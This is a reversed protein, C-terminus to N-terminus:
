WHNQRLYQNLEAMTFNTNGNAVEQRMANILDERQNSHKAQMIKDGLDSLNYKTNGKGNANPDYGYYTGGSSSTTGAADPNQRFFERRIAEAAERTMGAAALEEDTPNYGTSGIMKYMNAYSNQQRNYEQNEMQNQWARENEWAALDNQYRRYEDDRQQGLMAYQQMLRDGEANYQNLASGYLDPVVDGLKQLYADYAQQGVQQGYSSGYGGTLGAAQGMTNKMALKGQQIYQGKYQQYLPDKTVDYQFGPRNTIRNYMDQLQQDYTGAYTPRDGSLRAYVADGNVEYPNQRRKEEETM